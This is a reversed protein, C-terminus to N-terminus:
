SKRRVYITGAVDGVPYVPGAGNLSPPIPYSRGAQVTQTVAVGDEDYCAFRASERGEHWTLTTISSGAPVLVRGGAANNLMVEGTTTASDTVTVAVENFDRIM